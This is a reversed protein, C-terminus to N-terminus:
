AVEEAVTKRFSADSSVRARFYTAAMLLNGSESFPFPDAAIFLPVTSEESEFVAYAEITKTPISAAKTRSHRAPSAKRVSSSKRVPALTATTM